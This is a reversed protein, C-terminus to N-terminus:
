HGLFYHCFVIVGGLVFGHCHRVVRFLDSRLHQLFDALRGTHMTHLHTLVVV